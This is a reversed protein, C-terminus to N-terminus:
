APNSYNREQAPSVLINQGTTKTITHDVSIFQGGGLGLGVVVVSADVGATRQGGATESDYKFTWPISAGAYTGSIATGDKDLVLTANAEGYDNNSGIPLTKYFMYYKFDGSAANVGFTINGSSIFPYVRRTNTTFDYFEVSNLFATNLGSIYVGQEGVLTDGVFKLLANAVSGIVTGTGTDIDSNQRLLYQIKEYIEQTTAATSTDTIIYRYNENGGGDVDYPQNTTFYEVSISAHIPRLTGSVWSGPNVAKAVSLTTSTTATITYVGDFAAPNAGSVRVRLGSEFSHAANTTFTLVGASWTASSVTPTSAIAVDDAVDSIKLDTSNTLPFRYTIYTLIPAGIATNNSSAYLKSQERCFLKLADGGDTYDFSGATADGNATTGFIQIAENVEGPFQFNVKADSNWQYYPQDSAGLTGLTIVGMYRRNTLGAATKEAWGCSRLAKRTTDNALTWGNIFEFQEPTIAEMPFPYKIYTSSNKWLIKLASYLAQGTLGDAANPLTGSGPTITITKATENIVVPAAMTTASDTAGTLLATPDTIILAM